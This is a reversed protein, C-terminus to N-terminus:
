NSKMSQSLHLNSGHASARSYCTNKEFNKLRLSFIILFKSNNLVKLALNHKIISRESYERWSAFLKPLIKSKFHQESLVKLGQYCTVDLYFFSVLKKSLNKNRLSDGHLCACEFLISAGIPLLLLLILM